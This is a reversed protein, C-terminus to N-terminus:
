SSKDHPPSFHEELLLRGNEGALNCYYRMARSMGLTQLTRAYELFVAEVLSAILFVACYNYLYLLIQNCVVLLSQSNAILFLFKIVFM